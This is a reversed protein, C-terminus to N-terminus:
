KTYLLYDLLNILKALMGKSEPPQVSKHDGLHFLDFKQLALTSLGLTKYLIKEQPPFRLHM